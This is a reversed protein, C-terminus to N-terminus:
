PQRPPQTAPPKMQRPPAPLQASPPPSLRNRWWRDYAKFASMTPGNPYARAFLVIPSYIGAVVPMATPFRLQVLNAVPPASAISGAFALVVVATWVAVRKLIPRRTPLPDIEAM